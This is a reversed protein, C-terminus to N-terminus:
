TLLVICHFSTSPPTSPFIFLYPFERKGNFEKESKECSKEGTKVIAVPSILNSIGVLPIYKWGPFFCTFVFSLKKDLKGLTGRSKGSKYNKTECLPSNENEFICTINIFIPRLSLSLTCKHLQISFHVLFQPILSFWYSDNPFRPSKLPFQPSIPSNHKVLPSVYNQSPSIGLDPFLPSVPEPSNTHFLSPPPLLLKLQM